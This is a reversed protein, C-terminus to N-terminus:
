VAYAQRLDELKRANEESADGLSASMLNFVNRLALKERDELFLMNIAFRGTKTLAWLWEACNAAAAECPSDEGDSPGLRRDFLDREESSLVSGQGPSTTFDRCVFSLVQSLIDPEMEVRFLVPLNEPGILRLYQRKEGDTRCRQRWERQFGSREVPRCLPETETGQVDTTVSSSIRANRRTKRLGCKSEKKTASVVGGSRGQWGRKQDSLMEM